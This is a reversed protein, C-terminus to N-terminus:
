PSTWQHGPLFVPPPPQRSPVLALDQPPVPGEPKPVSPPDPSTPLTLEEGRAMQPTVREQSQVKELTPAGTSATAIM